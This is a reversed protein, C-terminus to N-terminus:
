ATLLIKTSFIIILITFCKKAIAPHVKDSLRVGLKSSFFAGTFIILCIGFNTYGFQFHSFITNPFIPTPPTKIVYSLTGFFTGVAMAINSYVPVWRFPTSLIMILLPIIIIGGGLGTLGAVVGGTLASLAVLITTKFTLNPKWSDDVIQENKTFITKVAILALILGFIIKITRPPISMTLQGGLLIGIVFTVTLPLFLSKDPKRGSKIFNYTNVISNLCIVGLSSSIVTQPPIEPFLSYLTPVILIGGGVGFFASLIGVLIGCIILLIFM